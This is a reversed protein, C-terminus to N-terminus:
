LKRLAIDDPSVTLVALTNNNNEFFEVEYALRPNTYVFVITGKCGPLVQASLKKVAQVAAHERFM